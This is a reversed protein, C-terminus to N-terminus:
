ENRMEYINKCTCQTCPVRCQMCRDVHEKRFTMNGCKCIVQRAIDGYDRDDKPETTGSSIVQTSRVGPGHHHLWSPSSAPKDKTAELFDEMLARIENLTMDKTLDWITKRPGQAYTFTLGDERQKIELQFDSM